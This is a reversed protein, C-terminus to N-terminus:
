ISRKRRIGAAGAALGFLGLAGPAPIAGAEIAVGANTEYAFGSITLEFTSVNWDVGVWGYNYEFGGLSQSEIQLGLYGFGGDDFPGFGGKGDSGKVGLAVPFAKSTSGILDGAGFRQFEPLKSSELNVHFGIPGFSSGSKSALGAFLFEPGSSNHGALFGISGFDGVAINVYGPEAVFGGITIGVEEYVIDAVASQTTAITALPVSAAALAYRHLRLESSM